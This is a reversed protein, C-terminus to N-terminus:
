IHNWFKMIGCYILIEKWQKESKSGKSVGNTMERVKEIAEESEKGKVLIPPEYRSVEGSYHPPITNDGVPKVQQPEILAERLKQNLEKEAIPEINPVGDPQDFEIYGAEKDKKEIMKRCFRLLRFSEKQYEKHQLDVEAEEELNGIAVLRNNLVKQAIANKIEVERMLEQFFERNKDSLDEQQVIDMVYELSPYTMLSKEFPLNLVAVVTEFKQNLKDILENFQILYKQSRKKPDEQKYNQLHALYIENAVTMKEILVARKLNCYEYQAETLEVKREEDLSEISPYSAINTPAPGPPVDSTDWFNSIAKNLAVQQRDKGKLNKIFSSSSAVAQEMKKIEERMKENIKGNEDRKQELAEFEKQAKLARQKIIEAEEKKLRSKELYAQVMDEEAEELEKKYIITQEIDLLQNPTM